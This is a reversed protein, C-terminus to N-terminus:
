AHRVVRYPVEEEYVKLAQEMLEAGRLISVMAKDADAPRVGNPCRVRLSTAVSRALGIAKILRSRNNNAM